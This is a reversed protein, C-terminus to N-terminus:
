IIEQANRLNTWFSPAELSEIQIFDLAAGGGGDSTTYLNLYIPQVNLEAVDIAANLELVHGLFTLVQRGAEVTLTADYATGGSFTVGVTTSQDGSAFVMGVSGGSATMWVRACQFNIGLPYAWDAYDGPAGGPTWRFTFKAPTGIHGQGGDEFLSGSAYSSVGAVPHLAGGSLVGGGGSWTGGAGLANVDPSHGSLGGSGNFDDRLLITM